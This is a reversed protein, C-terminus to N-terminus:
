LLWPSTTQLFRCPPYPPASQAGSAHSQAGQAKPGNSAQIRHDGSSKPYPASVSSYSNSNEWTKKKTWQRSDRGSNHQNACQKSYRFKKNQRERMQAQRKKKDKVQQTYVGLRSIDMDNNLM